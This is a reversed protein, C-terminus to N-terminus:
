FGVMISKSAREIRGVSDSLNIFIVGTTPDFLLPISKGEEEGDINNQKDKTLNRSIM